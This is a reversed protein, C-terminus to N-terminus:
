IDIVDDGSVKGKKATAPNVSGLMEFLNELKDNSLIEKFEEYENVDRIILGKRKTPNGTSDVPNVEVALRAPSNRYAPLKQIYVGPISTKVKGWDAGTKLFEALKESV